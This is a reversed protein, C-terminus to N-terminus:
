LLGLLRDVIFNAIKKLPCGVIRWIPPLKDVMQDVRSKLASRFGQYDNAYDAKLRTFTLGDLNPNPIPPRGPDPLPFRTPDFNIPGLPSVGPTGVFAARKLLFERAHVRGVDYDHDRFQQDFFGLFSSIAAGALESDKATIGYIRMMDRAGLGAAAEFAAMSACFAPVAGAIGSLQTVETAYQRQIRSLAQQRLEPKKAGPAVLGEPPYMLDLVSNATAQLPVVQVVGSVIGKALGAARQDMLRVRQNVGEATIWDRFQAQGIVVKVLQRLLGFYNADAEHFPDEVGADKAHPSVFLYFRSDQDEHNDFEDVLNKAIGIPQNQLIGGDSYTFTRPDENWRVLHEPPYDPMEHIASRKVDQARFAIPFAGCAVAVQRLPEWFDLTDSTRLVTRTRQDAYERYVFQDGPHGGTPAGYVPVGYDVGDLNTLAVGVKMLGTTQDTPLQVAGHLDLPRTVGVQYWDTLVQHSIKDILNSSLLSHLPNENADPRQLDKLNIKKVWTNYLPNDYPGEFTTGAYLLKNALIVATMGGASAGTVVDVFIKDERNTAKANHQSIADLIEWMVGAEYSGLSVAGAITIALRKPKGAVVPEM